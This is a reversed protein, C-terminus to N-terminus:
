RPYVAHSYPADYFEIITGWPDQCYILHIDEGDFLKWSKSLIKGGNAAVRAGIEDVNNATLCFHFIGARAYDFTNKPVHTKPTVFEFMEIGVGCASTLHAIKVEGFDAGFIDKVINGYHTGDDTASAPLALVYCGLVDRYWAVAAEVDPFNIGIHNM